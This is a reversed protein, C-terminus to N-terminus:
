QDFEHDRRLAWDFYFLFRGDPPHALFSEQVFQLVLWILDPHFFRQLVTRILCLHESSLISLNPADGGGTGDCPVCFNFELEDMFGGFSDLAPYTSPDHQFHAEYVCSNLPFLSQGFGAPPYPSYHKSLLPARDALFTHRDAQSVLCTLSMVQTQHFVGPRIHSVQGQAAQGFFPVVVLVVCTSVLHTDLVSPDYCAVTAFASGFSFKLSFWAFSKFKNSVAPGGLTLAFRGRPSVSSDGFERFSCPISGVEVASCPLTGVCPEEVMSESSIKDDPCPFAIVLDDFDM